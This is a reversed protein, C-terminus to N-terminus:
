ALRDVQSTVIVLFAVRGGSRDTEGILQLYLLLLRDPPVEEGREDVVYLREGARDFVAGLDAGIAKVLRRAQGLSEGLEVGGGDAAAGPAHLAERGGEADGVDDRHGAARHVLDPDGRPRQAARRRPLRCRLERDEAPAARGRVAARAPRRRRRGDLQPRRDDR